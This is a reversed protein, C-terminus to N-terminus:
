DCFARIEKQSSTFIDVEMDCHFQMQHSMNKTTSSSVWLLDGEKYRSGDMRFRWSAWRMVGMVLFLHDGTFTDNIWDRLCKWVVAQSRVAYPSAYRLVLIPIGQCSTWIMVLFLVPWHWMKVSSFRTFFECAASRLFLPAKLSTDPYDSWIERYVPWHIGDDIRVRDLCRWVAGDWGHGCNDSRAGWVLADERFLPIEAYFTVGKRTPRHV